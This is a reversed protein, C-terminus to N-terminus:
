QDALIVQYGLPHRLVVFKKGPPPVPLSRALGSRTLENLDTPIVKKLRVYERLKKNLMELDAATNSEEQASASKGGPALSIPETPIMM